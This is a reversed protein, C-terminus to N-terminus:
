FTYVAFVGLTGLDEEETVPSDEADGLLREYRAIGNLSWGSTLDYSGFLTASVDKLGGDADYRALGSRRSQGRDVGFYSTMYDDDAYTAGVSVRVFAGHRPMPFGYGAEAEVLLGEHGDGLDQAVTLGVSTRGLRYEYFVQGEVTADVDGLGDLHADEDEDRGFDPRLGVGMTGGAGRLANVRLGNFPDFTVLDRFAVEVYPLAMVRREDAGEYEPMALVGGGLKFKWDGEAGEGPVPQGAAHRGATYDEAAAPAALALATALLSLARIFPHHRSPSTM